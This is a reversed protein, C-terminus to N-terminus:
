SATMKDVEDELSEIYSPTSRRLQSQGMLVRNTNSFEVVASFDNQTLTNLLALTASKLVSLRSEGTFANTQSMSGSTDLVLVIDKPGSSAAVYWPRRRADDYKPWSSHCGESGRSGM